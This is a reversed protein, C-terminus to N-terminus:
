IQAFHCFRSLRVRSRLLVGSMFSSPVIIDVLVTTKSLPSPRPLRLGTCLTAGIKKNNIQFEANMLTITCMKKIDYVVAKELIEVDVIDQWLTPSFGYQYPLTSLTADFECFMPDQAAVRYHSFSLGHPESSITEKQKQWRISPSLQACIQRLVMVSVLRLYKAMEWLLPGAVPDTGASPVYSGHLINDIEAVNGLYGLELLFRSVSLLPAKLNVSGALIEGLPLKNTTLSGRRRSAANFPLVM